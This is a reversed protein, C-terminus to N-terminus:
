FLFKMGLGMPFIIKDDVTMAGATAFFSIPFKEFPFIGFMVQGGTPYWANIGLEYNRVPVIYENSDSLRGRLERIEEGDKEIREKLEKITSNSEELATTLDSNSKLLKTILDDKADAWVALSSLFFIILSIMLIKKLM